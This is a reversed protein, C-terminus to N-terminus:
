SFLYFCSGLPRLSKNKIRSQQQYHNLIVFGNGMEMAQFYQMIQQM